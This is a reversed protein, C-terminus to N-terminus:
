IPTQFPSFPGIKQKGDKGGRENWRPLLRANATVLPTSTEKWTKAFKTKWRYQTEPLHSSSSFSVRRRVTRHYTNKKPEAADADLLLNLPLPTQIKLRKM